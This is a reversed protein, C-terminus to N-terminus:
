SQNQSRMLLIKDWPKQETNANRAKFIRDQEEQQPGDLLKCRKAQTASWEQVLKGRPDQIEQYAKLVKPAEYTTKVGELCEALTVADELGM